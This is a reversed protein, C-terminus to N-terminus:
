VVSKRDRTRVCNDVNKFLCDSVIVRATQQYPVDDHLAEGHVAYRYNEFFCNEVTVCRTNKIVIADTVNGQDHVFKVGSIRIFLDVINNDNNPNARVVSQIKITGKLAGVGIINIHPTDIMVENFKYTGLPIYVTGGSFPFNPQNNKIYDITAQIAATNETVGDGKAGFDLVSVRDKKLVEIQNSNEEIDKKVINFNDKHVANNQLEEIAKYTRNHLYNMYEAPPRENIKWGADVKSLPPEEGLANWVPLRKEFETM